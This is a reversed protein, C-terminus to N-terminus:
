SLKLCYKKNPAKSLALIEKIPKRLAVLVCADGDQFDGVRLSDVLLMGDISIRWQCIVYSTKM